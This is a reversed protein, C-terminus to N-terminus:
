NSKLRKGDLSISLMLNM